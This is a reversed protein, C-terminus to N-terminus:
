MTERYSQELSTKVEGTEADSQHCNSQYDEGDSLHLDEEPESSPPRTVTSSPPPFARDSDAVPVRYLSASSSVPAGTTPIPVPHMDMSM